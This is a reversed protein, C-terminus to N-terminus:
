GQTKAAPSAPLSAAATPTVKAGVRARLLGNVIVKQNAELGSTVARYTEKSGEPTIPAGLTVMCRQVM